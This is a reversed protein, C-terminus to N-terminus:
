KRKTERMKRQKKKNGKKSPKKTDVENNKLVEETKKVDSDNEDDNSYLLPVDNVENNNKLVEEIEKVDSDHEGYHLYLLPVYRSIMPKAYEPWSSYPVHKLDQYSHFLQSGHEYVPPHVCKGEDCKMAKCGAAVCEARSVLELGAVAANLRLEEHTGYPSRFKSPVLGMDIVNQIGAAHSACLLSTEELIRLVLYHTRSLLKEADKLLSKMMHPHLNSIGGNRLARQFSSLRSEILRENNKIVKVAREELIGCKPCEWRDEEGNEINYTCFVYEKCDTEPCKHARCDDQAMCRSCKCFFDKTDQLKLRREFTPTSFLKDIYSFTVEDGSSIGRLVKYELCGDDNKSSYSVNPLSSCFSLVM